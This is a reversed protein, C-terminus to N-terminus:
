RKKQSGKAPLGRKGASPSQMAKLSANSSQQFAFSVADGANLSTLNVGVTPSVTGNVSLVWFFFPGSVSILPTDMTGNIVTVVYGLASGAYALVYSFPNSSTQQNFVGELAQQVTM